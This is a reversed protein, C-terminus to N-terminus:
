LLYEEIGVGMVLHRLYTILQFFEQLDNVVFVGVAHFGIERLYASMHKCMLLSLLWKTKIIPM